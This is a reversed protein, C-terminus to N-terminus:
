TGKKLQAESLEAGKKLHLIEYFCTTKMVRAVHAAQAESGRGGGAAAGADSGSASTSESGSGSGSASAASAPAPKPESKPAHRQERARQVDALEDAVGPLAHLRLSKAFLREARDLEGRRLAARALDRAQAAGDANM